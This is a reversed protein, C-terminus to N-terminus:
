LAKNKRNKGTQKQKCGAYCDPFSINGCEECGPVKSWDNTFHRIVGGSIKMLEKETFIRECKICRYRNKCFIVTDQCDPCEIHHNNKDYVSDYQNILWMQGEGNRWFDKRVGAVLYIKHNDDVTELLKM